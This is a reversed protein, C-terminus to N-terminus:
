TIQYCTTCAKILSYSTSSYSSQVQKGCMDNPHLHHNCNPPAFDWSLQTDPSEMCVYTNNGPVHDCSFGIPCCTDPISCSSGCTDGPQVTTRCNPLNYLIGSTTGACQLIDKANTASCRVGEELMWGAAEFPDMGFCQGNLVCTYPPSSVLLLM